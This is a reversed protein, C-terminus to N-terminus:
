SFILTEFELLSTEVSHTYNDQWSLASGDTLLDTSGDTFLDPVMQLHLDVVNSDKRFCVEEEEIVAIQKDM